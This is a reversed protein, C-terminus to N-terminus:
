VARSYPVQAQSRHLYADFAAAVNRVFLRGLPTVEVKGPVGHGPGGGGAPRPARARRAAGLRAHRRLACHLEADDIHFRCMLARIVFRRLEDDQSLEFGRVIPLAREDIRKSWDRVNKENQAYAGGVEGIASMGFGLMDTAHSVTYGQFTRNLTGNLLARAMSM